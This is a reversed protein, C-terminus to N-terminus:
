VLKNYLEQRIDAYLWYQNAKRHYICNSTLETYYMLKYMIVRHNGNGDIYYGHATETLKIPPTQSDIYKKLLFFYKGKTVHSQMIHDYAKHSKMFADIWSNGAYVSHSTGVIDKVHVKKRQYESFVKGDGNYFVCPEFFIDPIDELDVGLSHLLFGRVVKQNETYPGYCEDSPSLESWKM